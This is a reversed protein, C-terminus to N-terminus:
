LLLVTLIGSLMILKLLNSLKHFDEKTEADKLKFIFYLLPAVVIIVLYISTIYKISIYSYSFSLIILITFLSFFLLLKKSKRIGKEIPFSESGIRKDGEVDEIDKVLERLFTLLFAFSAIKLVLLFLEWQREQNAPETAPVLDFVPIIIISLFILFSVIINGYLYKKKFYIAYKYLLLSALIFVVSFSIRKIYWSVVFGLLIGTINMVSYFLLADDKSIKKGVLVKGPKNVKDAPIDHVDNIIYGASTTTIVSLVLLSFIYPNLYTAADFNLFLVYKILIMILVLMLLNKWRILNLIDKFEM